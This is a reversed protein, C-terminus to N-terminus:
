DGEDVRARFQQAEQVGLAAIVQDPGHGIRADLDTEIRPHCGDDRGVIRRDADAEVVPLLEGALQEQPRCTAAAVGGVDAQFVHADLGPSAPQYEDVLAVLGPDGVDIGGAVRDAKRREGGGRHLLPPAGGADHEPDGELLLEAGREGDAQVRDGFHLDLNETEIVGNTMITSPGLLYISNLNTYTISIRVKEQQTIPPQFNLVMKDDYFSALVKDARFSASEVYMANRTGPLLEITCNCYKVEITNFNELESDITAQAFSYLAMFM